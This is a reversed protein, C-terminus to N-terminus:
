EAQQSRSIIVFHRRERSENANALYVCCETNGTFVQLKEPSFPLQYCQERDPAISCEMQVCKGGVHLTINTIERDLMNVISLSNEGAFAVAFAGERFLCVGEVPLGHLAAIDQQLSRVTGGEYAHLGVITKMGSKLTGEAVARVWQANKEYAQSYAMPLAYNFLKAMDEYNQGYHLDSFAKDEYAGEPMLAASLTIEKKEARAASVLTNAFHFVDKRRARALAQVDKDYNRFADFLLESEAPSDYFMRQMMTKLRETDAGEARYRAQDEEAWGYLLHNYRIYDLHLGDVDYKRCVECIIKEMYHLYGEDALSILERDKGRTFHCRGSEPHLKKYNEDCTSTFWVHVRMDQRHAADLLELLLDRECLEPALSSRYATLGSLGKTLFFLDTVGMRVCRDVVRQAGYKQVNGPWMWMGLM